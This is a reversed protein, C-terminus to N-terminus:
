KKCLGGCPCNNKICENCRADLWQNMHKRSKWVRCGVCKREQQLLYRSVKVYVVPPLHLRMWVQRWGYRWKKVPVWRPPGIRARLQAETERRVFDMFDRMLVEM